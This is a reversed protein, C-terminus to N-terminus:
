KVEGGVVHMELKIGGNLNFNLSLEFSDVNSPVIQSADVIKMPKRAASHAPLTTDHLEHVMVYGEVTSNLIIIKTNEPLSM